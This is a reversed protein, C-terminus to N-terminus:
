RKVHNDYLYQGKGRTRTGQHIAHHPCTHYCALCGCCRGQWHPGDAEVKINGMPCAKACRGCAICAETTHFVKDSTLNRRFLPRLFYSKFCPFSGPIDEFVPRCEKVMEAIEVLRKPAAALKRARVRNTDVDFGPLAVYTNPMQLGFAAQLEIGRRKFARCLIARTCGMDDGCTALFYVYPIADPSEVTLRRLFDTVPDPPGWAYVPFALGLREGTKLTIHASEGAKPIPRIVTEHLLGGLHQAAFRTNGTASFYLIM